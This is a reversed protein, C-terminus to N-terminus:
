SIVSTVKLCLTDLYMEEFEIGSFKEAVDRCCKLFLGDAMRRDFWVDGAILM